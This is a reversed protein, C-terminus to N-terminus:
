NSWIQNLAHVNWYESTDEVETGGIFFRWKDEDDPTIHFGMGYDFCFRVVPLVEQKDLEAFLHSSDWVSVITGAGGYSDIPDEGQLEARIYKGILHAYDVATKKLRRDAM